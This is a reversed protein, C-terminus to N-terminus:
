RSLQSSIDRQTHRPAGRRTSSRTWLRASCCGAAMAACASLLLATAMGVQLALWSFGVLPLLLLRVIARLAGSQGIVEAIPPSIVYYRDVFARGLGSTALFTDRFERLVRVGPHLLTGFSATAVFCADATKFRYQPGYHVLDDETLAYARVYYITGPKLKELRASFPGYGSGNETEGDEAWEKEGDEGATGFISNTATGNETSNGTTTTAAVADTVFLGTLRDFTRVPSAAATRLFTIPTATTNVAGITDHSCRVFYRYNKKIDPTKVTATHVRGDISADMKDMASYAAKNSTSFGCTAQVDTRVKLTASNGNSTKDTLNTVLPPQLDGDTGDGNDTGDDAGGGNDDGTGAGGVTGAGGSYVPTDTISFVVGRKSVAQGFTPLIEGGTVATARTVDGPERTLIASTTYGAQGSNLDAPDRLYRAVGMSSVKPGEVTGVLLVNGDVDTALAYSVSEGASFSTTATKVRPTAAAAEAVTAAGSDAALARGVLFRGVREGVAALWRASLSTASPALVTAGDALSSAIRLKRIQVTTEGFTRVEQVPWALTDEDGAGETPEGVAEVVTAPTSGGHGYSALLFQRTGADTTYGSAVVGSRGVAVDYLVDDEESMRTVLVGNDGFEDDAQGSRTFRFLAADRKGAPGVSGALYLHGDNDEALRYGESAADSLNAVAVGQEGFTPDIAGDATLGVLMLSTRGELEYSGSVVLTGDSRELLGEASSDVGVGVLSIGQEGYSSDLVGDSFYRATVLVRGTTGEVGGAVTIMDDRNIQLATIEENGSGVPTIAVGDEGFTQDLTGDPLYCVLAFDRNAGNHSYGVAVIRGDSLLGLALAEDDGIAASTIVSGDNNFSTDLTGDRNFRVLSMNLATGKSSSGALLIKGDPQVLVAHASNRIGLEVAVRGNLGFSSDLRSVAGAPLVAACSFILWSTFLFLWRSRM